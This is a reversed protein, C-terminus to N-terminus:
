RSGDDLVEILPLVVREDWLSSETNQVVLMSFGTVTLIFIVLSGLLQMRINILHQTGFRAQGLRHNPPCLVPCMHVGSQGSGHGSTSDIMTIPPVLCPKPCSWRTDRVTSLQWARNPVPVSHRVCVGPEASFEEMHGTTEIGVDSAPAAPTRPLPAARGPDPLLPRVHFRPLGAQIQFCHAYTSAPCGPRSRPAAPTRPLPAARGPDPLLPRVHFRSLGAQIQSCRAYTSAPCGPRSRPAAPTRPLPAARGPDPLLPRVQEVPVTTPPSKNSAEQRNIVNVSVAADKEHVSTNSRKCYIYHSWDRSMQTRHESCTDAQSTHCLM